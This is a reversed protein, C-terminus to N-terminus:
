LGDLFKAERFKGLAKYTEKLKEKIKNKEVDELDMQILKEYYKVASARKGKKELEQAVVQYINKKALKIRQKQGPSASRGARVFMEDADDVKGARAYLEGAKLYSEIKEKFSVDIGAKMSMTKAAKEYLNKNEYFEGLNELIFRKIEYTLGAKLASELYAIKNLDTRMEGLKSEIEELSSEKVNIVM